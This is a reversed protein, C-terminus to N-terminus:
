YYICGVKESKPFIIESTPGFDGRDGILKFAM